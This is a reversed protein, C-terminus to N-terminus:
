RPRRARFVEEWLRIEIRMVFLLLLGALAIFPIWLWFPLDVWYEGVFDTYAEQGLFDQFMVYILSTILAGIVAGALRPKGTRRKMFVIDAM